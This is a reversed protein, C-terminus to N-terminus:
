LILIYIDDERGKTTVDSVVPFLDPLPGVPKRAKRLMACWWSQCGYNRCESKRDCILPASFPLKVLRLLIYLVAKIGIVREVSCSTM